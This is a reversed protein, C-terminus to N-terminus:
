QSATKKGTVYYGIVAFLVMVSFYDTIFMFGGNDPSFSAFQERFLLDDIIDLKIFAYIGYAAVIWVLIAATKPIKKDQGAFGNAALVANWNTGIHISLLIFNVQGLFHHLLRINSTGSVAPLFSFVHASLLIGSIIQATFLVTTTLILVTRFIESGTRRRKGMSRFWSRNLYLHCSFFVLMLTGIVEHAFRGTLPFAMLALLLITMAIDTVTRATKNLSM